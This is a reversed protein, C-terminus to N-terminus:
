VKWFKKNNIWSVCIRFYIGRKTFFNIHTVSPPHFVFYGLRLYDSFSLPSYCCILCSLFSHNFFGCFIKFTFLHLSCLSDPIFCFYLVFTIVVYYVLFLSFIYTLYPHPFHHDQNLPCSSNSKISKLWEQKEKRIFSVLGLVNRLM